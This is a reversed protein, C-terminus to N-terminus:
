IIPKQYERKLLQCLGKSVNIENAGKLHSVHTAKVVPLFCLWYIKM